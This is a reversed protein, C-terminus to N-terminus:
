EEKCDTNMSSGQVVPLYSLSPERLPCSYDHYCVISGAGGRSFNGSGTIYNAPRRVICDSGLGGRFM